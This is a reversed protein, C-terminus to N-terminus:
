VIEVIIGHVAEMLARKHRSLATDIGKGKVDVCHEIGHDHYVFDVVYRVKRGGPYRKSRIKLPEGNIVFEYPVQRHLETM